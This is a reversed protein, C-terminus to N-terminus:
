MHQDQHIVSESYQIGILYIFCAFTLSCYTVVSTLSCCTVVSTLLCFMNCVSLPRQHSSPRILFDRRQGYQLCGVTIMVRGDDTVVVESLDDGSDHYPVALVSETVADDDGEDSQIQLRCDIAATTYLNALAHVFVTGVLGADAIFAYQGRGLRALADLMVSDLNYGFGFLNM